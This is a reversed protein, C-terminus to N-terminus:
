RASKGDDNAGRPRPKSAIESITNRQAKVRVNPAIELILTNDDEIKAVTALLGGGTVVKDGRRLESVMKRHDKLKKQQPRILLFYFVVFILVLPLLQVLAGGGGAVADQAFATSIPM